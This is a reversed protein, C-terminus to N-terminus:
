SHAPNAILSCKPHVDYSIEAALYRSDVSFGRAIGISRFDGFKAVIIEQNKFVTYVDNMMM